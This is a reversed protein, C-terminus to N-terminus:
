NNGKDDTARLRFYLVSGPAPIRNVEVTTTAPNVAAEQKNETFGENTASELVVKRGATAVTAPVGVTVSSATTAMSKVAFDAEGQGDFPGFCYKYKDAVTMPAGNTKTSSDYSATTDWSLGNADLWACSVGNTAAGAVLPYQGADNLVYEDIATCGVVKVLSANNGRALNYWAGGTTDGTERVFGYNSKVPEGNLRIQCRGNTYDFLLSVRVWADTDTATTTIQYWDPTGGASNCYANFYGNSDVAVAIQVSSADEEPLELVDDPRAAQVMMDVLPTSGASVGNTAVGEVTLVYNGSLPYAKGTPFGAVSAASFVYNSESTSLACDGTWGGVAEDFTNTVSTACLSGAALMSGAIGLLCKTKKTM